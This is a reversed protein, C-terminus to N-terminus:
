SKWNWITRVPFTAYDLLGFSVINSNTRTYEM